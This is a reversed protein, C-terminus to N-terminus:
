EKQYSATQRTSSQFSFILIVCGELAADVNAGTAESRNVIAVLIM